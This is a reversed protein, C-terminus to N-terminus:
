RAQRLSLAADDPDGTLVDRAVRGALSEVLAHAVDRLVPLPAPEDEVERQGLVDPEVLVPVLWVGPEAPQPRAPQDCEGAPQQLLEVHTAPRGVVSAEDRDPPLWCFITMARSTSRSGRTSTAPWGVLPSSTPAM